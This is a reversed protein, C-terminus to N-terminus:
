IGLRIDHFFFKEEDAEESERNRSRGLSLFLESDEDPGAFLGVPWTLVVM